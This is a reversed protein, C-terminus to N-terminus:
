LAWSWGMPVRPWCPVAVDGHEFVEKTYPCEFVQGPELDFMEAADVDALCLFYMLWSAAVLRSYFASIDGEAVVFRKSRFRMRSMIWPGPLHCGRPQRCVSNFNCCALIKRLLGDKKPIFFASTRRRVQWPRCFAWVSRNTKLYKLRSSETGFWVGDWKPDAKPWEAEPLLIKEESM